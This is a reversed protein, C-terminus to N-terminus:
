ASRNKGGTVIIGVAFRRIAGGPLHIVARSFLAYGLFRALDTIFIFRTISVMQCFLPLILCGQIQEVRQFIAISRLGPIIPAIGRTLQTTSIFTDAIILTGDCEIRGIGFYTFVKTLCPKHFPTRVQCFCLQFGDGCQAALTALLVPIELRSNVAM